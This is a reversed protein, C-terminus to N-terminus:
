TQKWSPAYQFPRNTSRGSRCTNIIVIAVNRTLNSDLDTLFQSQNNQHRYILFIAFGHANLSVKLSSCFGEFTALAENTFASIGRGRGEKVHYNNM